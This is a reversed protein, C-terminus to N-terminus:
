SPTDPTWPARTDGVHWASVDHDHFKTRILNIHVLFSKKTGQDDYTVAYIQEVDYSGIDSCAYHRVQARDGLALLARVEPNSAIGQLGEYEQRSSLYHDWLKDNLPRRSAASNKLEVAKELEGKKLYEFWHVAIERSHIDLLRQMTVERALGCTTWFVALVLGAIALRRGSVESPAASIRVLAIVCCLSAAAAVFSLGIHVIALASILGLLFGVVALGSLSRYEPLDAEAADSFKGWRTNSSQDDM